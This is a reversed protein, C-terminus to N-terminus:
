FADFSLDENFHQGAVVTGEDVINDKVAVSVTADAVTFLNDYNSGLLIPALSGDGPRITNGEILAKSHAALMGNLSIYARRTASTIANRAVETVTPLTTGPRLFVYISTDVDISADDTTISNGKVVVNISHQTTIDIDAAPASFVNDEVIVEGKGFTTRLEHESVGTHDVLSSISWDRGTEFVLIGMHGYDEMTPGTATMENRSFTVSLGRMAFSCVFGM